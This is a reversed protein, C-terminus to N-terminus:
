RCPFSYYHIKERKKSLREAGKRIKLIISSAKNIVDVVEKSEAAEKEGQRRPPNTKEGNQL